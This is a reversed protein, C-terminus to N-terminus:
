ANEEEGNEDSIDVVTEICDLNIVMVIYENKYFILMGDELEVYDYDDVTIIRGDKYTIELM